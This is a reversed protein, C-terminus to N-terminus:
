SPQNVHLLGYCELFKNRGEAVDSTIRARAVSPEVFVQPYVIVLKTPSQHLHSRRSM